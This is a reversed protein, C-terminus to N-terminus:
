LKEKTKTQNHSGMYKYTEKERLSRIKEQNIKTRNKGNNSMKWKENNAHCM